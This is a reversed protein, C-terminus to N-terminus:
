RAAAGCRARSPKALGKSRSAGPLCGSGPTQGPSSRVGAQATERRGSRRSALDCGSWAAFGANLIPRGIPESTAYGDVLWCCGFLLGGAGRRHSLGGGRLAIRVHRRALLSTGEHWSSGCMRRQGDLLDQGPGVRVMIARSAPWGVAGPWDRLSGALGPSRDVPRQILSATPQGAAVRQRLQQVAVSPLSRGPVPSPGPCGFLVFQHTGQGWLLSGAAGSTVHQGDMNATILQPYRM